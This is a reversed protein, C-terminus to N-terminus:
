SGATWFWCGTTSTFHAGLSAYVNMTPKNRVSFAARGIRTGRAALAACGAEYQLLGSATAGEHRMALTLTASTSRPEALMWGQVAGDAAAFEFCTEPSSEVLQEAWAVMRAGVREVSSGPLEAYREFVFPQHSAFSGAFEPEVATRVQLAAASPHTTAQLRLKFGIQVDYLAFGAALLAPEAPAAELESRFEVWEYPALAAAREPGSLDFFAADDCIGVPAGWWAANFDHSRIM